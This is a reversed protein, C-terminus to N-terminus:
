ETTTVSLIPHVVEQELETITSASVWGGLMLQAAFTVTEVEVPQTAHLTAKPVGVTESLQPTADINFLAGVHKEDPFVITVHVAVSLLPFVAEQRCVTM